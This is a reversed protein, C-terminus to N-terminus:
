EKQLKKMVLALNKKITENKPDLQFAKEFMELAEKWQELKFLMVGFQNYIRADSTRKLSLGRIKQLAEKVNGQKLFMLAQEYTTEQKGELKEGSETCTSAAWQIPQTYERLEVIFLSMDDSQPEKECFNQVDEWVKIVLEKPSLEKLRLLCEEFRAYGYQEKAQNHAEVVGDTFFVLKEGPKLKVKENDFVVDEIKGILFGKADLKQITDKEPSLLIAPHHGGNAFIFDGTEINLVGYYATLYHDLDGFFRLLERNLEALMEAPTQKEHAKSQFLAKAMSAILAAPVGHGSVDAILLGYLNENLPICDYLDGGVNEMALYSTGFDLEKRQPLMELSPILHEQVRQAMELELLMQKNKESLEENAKQLEFTRQEVMNELNETFIQITEAMENFNQALEELEDGTKVEVRRSFDRSAFAMVGEKLEIIHDLIMRNAVFSFLVIMVIVVLVTFFFSILGLSTVPAFAENYGVSAVVFWDLEPLYRFAYITKVKKTTETDNGEIFLQEDTAIMMGNTREKIMRHIDTDRIRSELMKTSHVIQTFLSTFIEVAGTKGMKLQVIDNRFDMPNILNRFDSKYTSVVVVWDLPKYYIYHDIKEVKEGDEELTYEVFDVQDPPLTTAGALINMHYLLGNIDKLGIRVVNKGQLSTNPHYIIDGKLNMIYYFGRKGLTLSHLYQILESLIQSENKTKQKELMRYVNELPSKIYNKIATNLATQAVMTAGRVNNNLQEELSVKLQRYANIYLIISLMGMFAMVFLTLLLLLKRKVSMSKWLWKM